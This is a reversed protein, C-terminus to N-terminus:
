KGPAADFRVNLGVTIWDANEGAVNRGYIVDIDFAEVPTYRLGIQARPNRQDEGLVAFIEGILTLPKVFNWEVGAGVLGLHQANRPDYTWGGNINIKLTDSLPLTFPVAASLATVDGTRVDLTVSGSLAVGVTGVGAKVLNSKGKLTLGGDWVNGARFGSFAAGVEVPRGLDVVCAPLTVGVFDRNDAFSTWSEVKCAGIDAIDSDDVVFAGGAARAEDHPIGATMAVLASVAWPARTGPIM